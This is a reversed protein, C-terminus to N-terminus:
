SLNSTFIDRSPIDSSRELVALTRHQWLASPKQDRSGECIAARKSTWWLMINLDCFITIAGGTWRGPERTAAGQAPLHVALRHVRNAEQGLLVNFVEDLVGLYYRSWARGRDHKVIMVYSRSDRGEVFDFKFRGSYLAVRRFFEICSAVTFEGIAYTVVPDTFERTLERGFREFTAEDKDSSFKALLLDPVVVMGLEVAPIDWDVLKRLSMSVFFNM